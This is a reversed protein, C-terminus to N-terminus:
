AMVPIPFVGVGEPWAALRETTVSGDDDGHGVAPRRLSSELLIRMTLPLSEVDCCAYESFKVLSAIRFVQEGVTLTESFELESM